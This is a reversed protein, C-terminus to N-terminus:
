EKKRMKRTPTEFSKQVSWGNKLRWHASHYDINLIECWESLPRKEGKYEIILTNSRNRCQEKMTAWRCNDPEYNGNNDIRDLTLNDSYGNKISWDYFSQFDNVWQECINVGKGGYRPYDKASQNFCRDKMDGWIRYLRTNKKGHTRNEEIRKRFVDKCYCGCSRAKGHTLQQTRLRVTNGCSCECLWVRSDKKKGYGERESAPIYRIVKLRDFERGTLDEKPRNM